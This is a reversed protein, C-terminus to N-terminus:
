GADKALWRELKGVTAARARVQASEILRWQKESIGAEGAAQKQSLGRRARASYLANGLETMTRDCPVGKPRTLVSGFREPRDPSKVADM